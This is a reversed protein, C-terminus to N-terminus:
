RGAVSPARPDREVGGRRAEGFEGAVERLDALRSRARIALMSDRRDGPKRAIGVVCIPAVRRM